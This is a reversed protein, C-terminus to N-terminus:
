KRMYERLAVAQPDEKPILHHHQSPADTYPHYINHADCILIALGKLTLARQYYVNSLDFTKAICELILRTSASSLLFPMQSIAHQRTAHKTADLVLNIVDHFNFEKALPGAADMSDTAVEQKATGEALEFVGYDLQGMTFSQVHRYGEDYLERVKEADEQMEEKTYPTRDFTAVVFKQKM